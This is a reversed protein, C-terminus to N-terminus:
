AKTPLTLHTYSVPSAEQRLSAVAQQSAQFLQDQHTVDAIMRVKNAELQRVVSAEDQVACAEQLLQQRLESAERSRGLADQTADAVGTAASKAERVAQARLVEAKRCEDFLQGMMEVARHAARLGNAQFYYWLFESRTMYEQALKALEVWPELARQDAKLVEPNIRRVGRAGPKLSLAYVAKPLGVPNEQSQEIACIAEYYCLPCHLTVVKPAQEPDVSRLELVPVTHSVPAGCM